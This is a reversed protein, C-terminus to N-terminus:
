SVTASSTSRRQPHRSLSLTVPSVYQVTGGWAIPATFRPDEAAGTNDVSWGILSRNELDLLQPGIRSLQGPTLPRDALFEGPNLRILFDGECPFPDAIEIVGSSSNYIQLAM